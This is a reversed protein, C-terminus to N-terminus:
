GATYLIVEVADNEINLTPVSYVVLIGLYALGVMPEAEKRIPEFTNLQIFPMYKATTKKIRTIAKFDATETGLEFCLEELNAGFDHLMVREGHNTALMNRFNDKIQDGLSMRMKFPGANEGTSLEMPTKIGVPVNEFPDVLSRDFDSQLQGVSNFDYKKTIQGESM